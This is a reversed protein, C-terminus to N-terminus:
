PTADEALLARVRDADPLGLQRYIALAERWREVARDAGEAPARGAAVGAARGAARDAAGLGELARAEEYRDGVARAVALAEGHHARALDPAGAALHAAGLNNLVETEIGRAGIGRALELARDFLPLAEDTRGGLRHVEALNGLARARGGPDAFLSLAEGLDRRARDHDGLRTHVVGLNTLVIARGKAFGLGDAIALAERYHELAEDYRGLREYLNGLNNLAGAEGLRDGARRCVDLALRHHRRADEHRGLRLYAVGLHYLAAGEAPRDGAARAADRVHDLVALADSHRGGQDLHRQLPEALRATAASWGRRATAAILALLCQWEADVWERAADVPMPADGEPGPHLADMARQAADAFHDVLRELAVAPVADDTVLERAYARVLDHMDFRDAASRQILHARVLVDLRRAAARVDAGLLAAAAPLGLDHAPHAGLLRFDRGAEDSLHRLSWSFVTRVATDPDGVDLLDLGQVALDAVLEALSPASRGHARAVVIRLALPLGGCREALALAAEASRDVEDGLHARLLDVGEDASLPRLDVRRAGPRVQLGALDTRSTVLVFCGPEAPLLPRVQNVDLANDLVVLVRKRALLSRLRAAREDGGAPIDPDDVGLSRLFGALVDAPDHPKVPSYGHLDAYLCGDPFGAAVRHGWRVALATKGVGAPGALVVIPVGGAAGDALARDLAALERGRGTFGVPDAPLEAPVPRPRRAPGASGRPRHLADRVTALRRHEGAPVALETLLDDLAEGSPLTTGALYAYLTSQSIRVRKALAAVKVPGRPGHRLWHKLARGLDAATGADEPIGPNGFKELPSLESM